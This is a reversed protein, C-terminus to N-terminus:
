DDPEGVRDLMRALDFGVSLELMAGYGWPEQREPVDLYGATALVGLLLYSLKGDDSAVPLDFGLGAGLEALVGGGSTGGAGAADAESSRQATAVQARALGSLRSERGLKVIAVDALAEVGATVLGGADEGDGAFGATMGGGFRGAPGQSVGGFGLSIAEVDGQETGQGALMGGRMRGYCGAGGLLAAVVIVVLLVSRM